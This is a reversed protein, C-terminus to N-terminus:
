KILFEAHDGLAHIVQLSIVIGEDTMYSYTGNSPAQLSNNVVKFDSDKLLNLLESDDINMLFTKHADSLETEDALAKVSSIDKLKTAINNIDSFDSLSIISGNALDINETYFLSNPYAAGELFSSGFYVISLYRENQLTVKYNVEITLTNMDDQTYTNLSSLAVDELLKNISDAKKTDSLNSIQPYTITINNSTYTKTELTYNDYTNANDSNTNTNDNSDSSTENETNFDSITNEVSAKSEQSSNQTSPTKITSNCGFLINTSALTGLLLLTIPKFKM